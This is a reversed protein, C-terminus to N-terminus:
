ALRRVALAIADASTAITRSSADSGSDSCSWRMMAIPRDLGAAREHDREVLPIQEVLIAALQELALDRAVEGADLPRRPHVDRGLGAARDLPERGGQPVLRREHSRRM